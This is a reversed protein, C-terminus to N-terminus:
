DLNDSLLDWIQTPEFPKEIVDVAGLELCRDLVHDRRQCTIFAFATNALSGLTERLSQAVYFGDGGAMGIDVFVFDPNQNRAADIGDVGNAETFVRYGWSELRAALAKATREDDDIILISKTKQSNSKIATPRQLHQGVWSNVSSESRRQSTIVNM